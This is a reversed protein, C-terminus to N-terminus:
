LLENVIEIIEKGTTSEGYGNIVKRVIQEKDLIFFVPAAGGTQYDKVVDDTGSLLNYNLAHRNSYDRLYSSKRMWTEVGILEFNDTNHDNKLQKLFPISVVCPACGIGTFQLLLVKGKFDSFSVSNEDKDLLTWDPAKKGVLESAKKEKNRNNVIDRYSVIEYDAPLYEFMNFDPFSLKNLEVNSCTRFTIEHALERKVKFPRNDSKAIWLEYISPIGSFNYPNGHMYHAKGFFEVQIDEHITLILHYHDNLDTLSWDISDNTTLVYNIINKANNFFPSILMRYPLLDMSFDDLVVRQSEHNISAKMNGNYGLNMKTSDECDFLLFAAGITTDVPNNYEKIFRCFAIKAETGGPQWSEIHDFYTASEIKELNALVKQLYVTSDRDTNCGIGLIFLPFLYILRMVIKM